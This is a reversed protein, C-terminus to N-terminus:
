QNDLGSFNYVKNILFVYFILFYLMQLQELMTYNILHRYQNYIEDNSKFKYSNFQFFKFIVSFFKLLFKLYSKLINHKQFNLFYYLYYNM